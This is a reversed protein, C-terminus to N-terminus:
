VAHQRTIEPISRQKPRFQPITYLSAKSECLKLVLNKTPNGVYWVPFIDQTM